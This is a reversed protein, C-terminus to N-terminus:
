QPLKAPDAGVTSGDSTKLGLLPSGVKIAYSADFQAIPADLLFNGAPWTIWDAPPGLIANDRFVYGPALGNLSPLGTGYPSAIGYDRHEVVNGTMVFRVLPTGADFGLFQNGSIGIVTNHTLSLDEIGATGPLAMAWRGDGGWTVNDINQWVNNDVRVRKVPGSVAAVNLGSSINRVVNGSFTVDEVTTWPTGPVGMTTFLISWGTQAQPWNFEFTNGTITIQKGYKIELLNKIQPSPSMTRWALDKKVTNRTFVVGVPACGCTPIAGGMLFNESGAELYNNDVRLPGPADWIAVAQSDRGVEWMRDIWSNTVAVNVGNAAIGRHGGTMANGRILSQDVTFNVPRSAVDLDISTVGVGPADIQLGRLTYNDGLVEVTPSTLDKPALRPLKGEADIGIRAGAAPLTAPDVTITIGYPAGTRPLTLNGTYTGAALVMTVAGTQAAKAATMLAANLDTGDPVSIRHPDSPAPTPAPTPAPMPAVTVPDGVKGTQGPDCTVSHLTKDKYISSVKCPAAGASVACLLAIVVTTIRFKM